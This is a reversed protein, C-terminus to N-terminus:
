QNRAAQERKLEDRHNLSADDEEAAHPCGSGAGSGKASEESRSM